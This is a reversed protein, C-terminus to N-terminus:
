GFFVAVVRFYCCVGLEGGLSDDFNMELGLKGYARRINEPTPKLKPHYRNLILIMIVIIDCFM